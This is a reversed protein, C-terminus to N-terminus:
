TDSRLGNAYMTDTLITTVCGCKEIAVCGVLKWANQETGDHTVHVPLPEAYHLLAAIKRVARGRASSTPPQGLIRECYRVVAHRSIRFVSLDVTSKM